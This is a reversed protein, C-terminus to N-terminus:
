AGAPRPRRIAHGDGTTSPAEPQPAKPAAAIAPDWYLLRGCSDCALLAGERLENWMQPRVGMRCGTCQREEARALGTGRKGAIREFQELLGADAAQRLTAREADLTALAAAIEAQERAVRERTKALATTDEDIESRAAAQAAEATETREMSAFEENELRAIESEAFEVEHEIAAVQAPTTMTDLQKRYRAAKERHQNAETELKGRAAEERALAAAADAARKGAAALAKEAEAIQTPLAQADKKLRTRELEVAQLKALNEIQANM